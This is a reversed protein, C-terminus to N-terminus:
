SIEGRAGEWSAASVNPWLQGVAARRFGWVSFQDHSSERQEKEELFLGDMGGAGDLSGDRRADSFLCSM